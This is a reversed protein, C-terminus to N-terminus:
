VGSLENIHASWTMNCDMVLGLNKAKDTNAIVAGGYTLEPVVSWDLRSRLRASGIIMAQSKSPNVVLGFYNAWSQISSLDRNLSCVADAVEPLGFHKYLQLDDAYLHFSSSASIKNIFISFLLPSLVGGQPVGFPLYVWDSSDDDV